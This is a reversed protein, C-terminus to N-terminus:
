FYSYKWFLPTGITAWPNLVWSTDRLLHARDRVESLPNLIWCQWLSYLLNYIHSPDGIATSTATATALLQLELEVDLRPVEMHWLPPWLFFFFPSNGPTRTTTCHFHICSPVMLNHTWDRAESLPNFIKCQWSSHHLNCVHSPDSTATATTYALLQLESQVGLRPVEMHRLYLELSFFFNCFYYFPFISTFYTSNITCFAKKGSNHPQTSKLFNWSGGDWGDLFPLGSKISLM